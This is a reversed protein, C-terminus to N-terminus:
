IILDNAGDDISKEKEEKQNEEKVEEENFKRQEQYEINPISRNKHEELQKKHKKEIDDELTRQAQEKKDLIVVGLSIKKKDLVKLEATLDQLTVARASVTGKIM